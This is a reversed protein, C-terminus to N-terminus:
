IEKPLLVHRYEYLDDQYKESNEIEDPLNPRSPLSELEILKPEQPLEPAPAPQEQADQAIQLPQDVDTAEIAM